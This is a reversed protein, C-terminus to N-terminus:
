TPAMGYPAESLAPCQQRPPLSTATAAAACLSSERQNLDAAALPPRMSPLCGIQARHPQEAAV